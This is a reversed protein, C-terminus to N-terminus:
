LIIQAVACFYDDKMIIVGTKSKGPTGNVEQM